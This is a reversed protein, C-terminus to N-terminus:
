KDKGSKLKAILRDKAKELVIIIVSVVIMFIGLALSPTFPEDLFMIGCFVASLPELSGLISTITSGISKVAAALAICSFATPLLALLSINLASNMDPIKQIGTSFFSNIGCFFATGACAFFTIRLGSMSSIRRNKNVVIMYTGYCLGSLLALIVGLLNLSGEGDGKYLMFVGYIAIAIAFLTMPSIKEGYFIRMILAVFVPYLFMITAAIGGSLYNFSWFLFVSSGTYILGLLIISPIERLSPLLREKRCALIIGIILAAVLFRYFLISEFRMGADMLPFTFLPIMGYTISSIAAALYGKAKNM